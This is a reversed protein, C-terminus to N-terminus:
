SNQEVKQFIKKDTIFTGFPILSALLAWFITKLSWMKQRGVILVLLCYAIFLIGHLIGIIKNPWLIGYSYKLPMSIAFALYSIGELIAVIRLTKFM